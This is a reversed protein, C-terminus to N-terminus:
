QQGHVIDVGKFSGSAHCDNCTELPAAAYGTLGAVVGQSLDGFSAGGNARVHAFAASSDHCATCSAAKPSIVPLKALDIGGPCALSNAAATGTAGLCAGSAEFKFITPSSFVGSTKSLSTSVIPSGLTGLDQKYSNNVHCANCNLGVGPYAVEAGYNEVGSVGLVLSPDCAPTKSLPNAPNCFNGVVANGHTFPYMRKSNGHIGHIMRKFQYSENFVFGNTMVTTSVKNADHCVVCAEVTNRAGSHFAESLTNSGSTAGLAGHCANCKDNSVVVRRPSSAGSLVVDKFTNQALVNVPTSGVVPAHNVDKVAALPEKVQGISVVRATGAAVATATNAPIPIDVSYHNTGDNIGKYAYANAGSGGTNNASFETVATTQGVMNQYGLYFRLNGFKTATGCTPVTTSACDSTVLNYASDGNTPDSLYYNVTVAGAVGPAAGVPGTPLSKVTVSTINMKYKASNEENQNWHVTASAINGIHCAACQANTLAAVAVPASNAGVPLNNHKATWSTADSIVGPVHCTLCAERTVVTKWNDGQPTNPNSASHCKSCNRLDQPFGIDSFSTTGVVYPSSAAALRKGSHIKHVMTSLTVVNGTVPDTTGANHCVVCYQTDIRGGGHASLKEHCSNCSSVDTLKRTQATTAAVSVSKGSTDKTLKFDFYPNVKVTVGAKNVYVLQLAIRLTNTETTDYFSPRGTTTADSTSKVDTRFTYTYYGDPNYVLQNALKTPDTEYPDTTAQSVSSKLKTVYSVWQDPEGNTGPVLKALAVRVNSPAKTDLKLGQVVAGDSIVTFNVVPPSNITVAPVGAAQLVTFPASSNTASDNSPLAAAATVAANVATGTPTATDGGGGGGGCGALAM